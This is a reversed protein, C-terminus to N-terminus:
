RVRFLREVTVKRDVVASVSQRHEWEAIVDWSSPARYESVLVLAGTDAWSECVKYLEDHDFALAGSYQTTGLYPPDCYVVCSENVPASSYDGYRIDAGCMGPRQKEIARASESAYNRWEGSATKGRAYGGFWKAGFSSGVGVFGRLASPPAHRMERYFDESVEEPPYRGDVVAQWMMAISENAEIGIARDFHPAIVCFSNAGGLFPEIYTNHEPQRLKQIEGLIHTALKTKGGVYRM